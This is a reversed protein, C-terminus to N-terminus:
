SFKSRLMLRASREEWEIDTVTNQKRQWQSKWFISVDWGWYVTVSTTPVAGPLVKSTSSKPIKVGNCKAVNWRPEPQRHPCGNTLCKGKGLWVLLRSLLIEEQSEVVWESYLFLVFGNAKTQSVYKWLTIHWVVSLGHPKTFVGTPRAYTIYERGLIWTWPLYTLTQSPTPTLTLTPSGMKTNEQM